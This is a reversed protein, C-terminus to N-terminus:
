YLEQHCGRAWRGQHALETNGLSVSFGAGLREVMGGLFSHKLLLPLHLEVM